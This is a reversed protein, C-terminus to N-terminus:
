QAQQSRLAHQQEMELQEKRQQIAREQIQLKDRTKELSQKRADLKQWRRRVEELQQQIVAIQRKQQEIASDVQQQFNRTLSLTLSNVAQYTNNKRYEEKCLLLQALRAQEEELKGQVYAIAKLGERAKQSSLKMIPELKQSRKM